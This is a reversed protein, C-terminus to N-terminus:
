AWTRFAGRSAREKYFCGSINYNQTFGCRGVPWIVGDPPLQVFAKEQVERPLDDFLRGTLTFVLSDGLNHLRFYEESPLGTIPATQKRSFRFTSDPVYRGGDWALGELGLYVSLQNDRREFACDLWEGPASFLDLALRADDATLTRGELTACLYAFVEAPQLHRHYGAARLRALSQDYTFLRKPRHLGDRDREDRPASPEFAMFEVLSM